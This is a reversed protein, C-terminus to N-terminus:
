HSGSKQKWDLETELEFNNEERAVLAKTLRSRLEPDRAHGLMRELDEVVLLELSEDKM